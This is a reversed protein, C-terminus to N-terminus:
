QNATRGAGCNKLGRCAKGYTTKVFPVIWVEWLIEIVLVVVCCVYAYGALKFISEFFALKLSSSASLTTKTIYPQMPPDYRGRENTYSLAVKALAANLRATFGRSINARHMYGLPIKGLSPDISFLLGNRETLVM